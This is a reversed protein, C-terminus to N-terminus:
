FGKQLQRMCYYCASIWHRTHNIFTFFTEYFFNSLSYILMMRHDLGM